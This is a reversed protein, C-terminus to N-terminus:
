WKSTSEVDVVIDFDKPIWNYFLLGKKSNPNTDDNGYFYTYFPNKGKITFRLRVPKGYEVQDDIGYPTVSLDLAFTDKDCGALELANKLSNITNGEVDTPLYGYQEMQYLYRKAIHDVDLKMQVIKAYCFFSMMLAFVFLMVFLVGMNDVFDGNEVGIKHANLSKDVFDGAETKKQKCNQKVKNFHKLVFSPCKHGSKQLLTNTLM